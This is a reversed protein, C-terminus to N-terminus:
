GGMRSIPYLAKEPALHTEYDNADETVYVVLTVGAVDFEYIIHVDGVGPKYMTRLVQVEVVNITEYDDPNEMPESAPPTVEADAGSWKLLRQWIDM